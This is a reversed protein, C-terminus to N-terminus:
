AAAAAAAAPAAPAEAATPVPEEPEAEVVQSVAYLGHLMGPLYIACTFGLNVWFAKDKVGRTMAVGVPPFFFTTTYALYKNVTM